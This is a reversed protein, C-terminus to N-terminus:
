QDAKAHTYFIRSIQNVVKCLCEALCSHLINICQLIEQVSLHFLIVLKRKYGIVRYANWVPKGSLLIYLDCAKKCSDQGPAVASSDDFFAKLQHLQHIIGRM